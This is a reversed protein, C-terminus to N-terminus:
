VGSLAAYAWKEMGITFILLALSSDEFRLRACIERKCGLM